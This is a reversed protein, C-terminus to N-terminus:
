KKVFKSQNKEYGVVFRKYDMEHLYKFDMNNIYSILSFKNVDKKQKTKLERNKDYFYDNKRIYGLIITNKFGKPPEMIVLLAEKDHQNDKDWEFRINGSLKSKVIHELKIKDETMLYKMPTLELKIKM